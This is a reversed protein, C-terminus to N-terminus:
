RSRARLSPPVSHDRDTVIRPHEGSPRRGFRVGLFSALVALDIPRVFCADLEPPPRVDVDAYGVVIASPNKVRAERALNFFSSGSALALHGILGAVPIANLV